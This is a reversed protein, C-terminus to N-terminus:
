ALSGLLVLLCIGGLVILSAGLEHGAQLLAVLIGVRVLEVHADGDLVKNLLNSKQARSQHQLIPWDLRALVAGLAVHGHCATQVRTADLALLEGEEVQVPLERLDLNDHLIPSHGIDWAVHGASVVLIGLLALRRVVSSQVDDATAVNNTDDARGTLRASTKHESAVAREFDPSILM